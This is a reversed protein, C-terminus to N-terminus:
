VTVPLTNATKAGQDNNKSKHRKKQKKARETATGETTGLLICEVWCCRRPSSSNSYRHGGVLAAAAATGVVQLMTRRPQQQQQEGDISQDIVSHQEKTLAIVWSLMRKYSCMTRVRKFNELQVQGSGNKNQTESKELESKAWLAGIMHVATTTRKNAGSLFEHTSADLQPRGRIKSWHLMKCNERRIRLTAAYIKM